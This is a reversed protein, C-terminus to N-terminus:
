GNKIGRKLIEINKDIIISDKEFQKMIFNYPNDSLICENILDRSNPDSYSDELMEKIIPKLVKNLDIIDRNLSFLRKMTNAYYLDMLSNSQQFSDDIKDVLDKSSNKILEYLDNTKDWYLTYFDNIRKLEKIINTVEITDKTDDHTIIEYEQLANYADFLNFTDNINLESILKNIKSIDLIMLKNMEEIIAKLPENTYRLDQMLLEYAAKFGITNKIINTIIFNAKDKIIKCIDSNSSEYKKTLEEIKLQISNVKQSLENFSVSDVKHYKEWPRDVIEINDDYFYWIDINYVRSMEFAINYQLESATNRTLLNNLNQKSQNLESAIDVLKKGEKGVFYDIIHKFKEFSKSNEM